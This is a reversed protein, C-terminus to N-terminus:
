SWAGDGVFSAKYGVPEGTDVNTEISVETIIGNGTYDQTADLKLTFAGSQGPSPISGTSGVKGSFEGSVEKSGAVAHKWGNGASDGFTAVNASLKLSWNTIPYDTTDILVKGGTGTIYAM